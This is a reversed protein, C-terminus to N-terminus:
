TAQLNQARAYRRDFRWRELPLDSLVVGKGEVIYCTGMQGQSDARM